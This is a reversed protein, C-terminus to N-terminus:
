NPSDYDNNASFQLGRVDRNIQPPPADSATQGFHGFVIPSNLPSNFGARFTNNVQFEDTSNLTQNSSIILNKFIDGELFKSEYYYGKSNFIKDFIPKVYPSPKFNKINISNNWGNSQPVNQNIRFNSNYDALNYYYGHNWDNTWSQTITSISYTHSYQSFDLSDLYDNSIDKILTATEGFINCDYQYSNNNLTRVFSLQLFCEIIPTYYLILQIKYKKRTDFESSSNTDQIFNFVEINNKTGPITISKSFSTNRITFDRVDSINYTLPIVFNDSLEIEKWEDNIQIYLQSRNM